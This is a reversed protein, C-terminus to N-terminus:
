HSVNRHSTYLVTNQHRNSIKEQVFYVPHGEKQTRGEVLIAHTTVKIKFNAVAHLYVIIIFRCRQQGYYKDSYFAIEVGSSNSSPPM